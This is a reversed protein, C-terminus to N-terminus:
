RAPEALKNPAQTRLLFVVPLVLAVFWALGWFVDIYSMIGAQRQVEAYARGMAVQGAQAAPLGQGVIIGTMRDLGAQFGGNLPNMQEVLRAQHFQQRHILFTQVVSIGMTGGLNRCISMMSSAQATQDQPLGVYAASSLPVFLFPVGVAIWVRMMAAYSFSIDATMSTMRALAFVEIALGIFILTRAKVSNSLIGIAPMVFLTAIGGYTMALGTETSTYGLIQQLLQPLFQTTGLLIVGVVVIVLNAVAYNRLKFLRLNLLPHETTLERWVFAIMGVVALVATTCIMPSSFWGDREGRDMTIELCGLGLTILAFGIADIRVGSALRAQREDEMIKPERIMMQVLVLSLAAVPVNILFIWHWSFNDTILGGLTPGITPALIVTLGFLAMASGRKAPPFTDVLIAQTSPQLGGGALGQLIRALILVTLNPALGCLLSAVGFGGVCIMYYRKRGIVGSLWSSVPITIANAILYSTLVWTAEDYSVSLGGAIHRLAVNAISTDLVEMFTSISIVGAIAWPNGGGAAASRAGSWAADSGPGAM